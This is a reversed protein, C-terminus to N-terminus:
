GYSPFYGGFVLSWRDFAEAVKGAEEYEIAAIARNHATELRSVVQGVKTPTDLYSAINGYGAPDLTAHQVATRASDFLYGVAFPFTTIAVDAMTQLTLVEVHFSRLLWSHVKNWGKIMRILPSLRHDHNRNAEQFIEIHKKPDTMIWQGSISDPIAYGNELQFGPVVDARFDSFQITVAQGNRSIGTTNPYAKQLRRKVKDLLSAQGNDEFYSTDLVVFIDVDADKLPAIMTGRRYSGTLFSDVVKMEEELVARVNKQRTSVTSQQLSTIRLNDQLKEFGQDITTAM